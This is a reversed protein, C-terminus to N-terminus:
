RGNLWVGVVRGLRRRGGGLVLGAGHGLGVKRVGFAGQEQNDVPVCHHVPREERDRFAEGRRGSLVCTPHVAEQHGEQLNNPIVLRCVNGHRKVGARWGESILSVRLVLRAPWRSRVLQALLKRKYFLDQVGELNWVKLLVAPFRVVQDARHAADGRLLADVRQHHRTVPVLQLEDRVRHVDQHVGPESVCLHVADLREALAEGPQHRLRERVYLTQLAVRADNLSANYNPTSARFSEASDNLKQLVGGSNPLGSEALERTLDDEVPPTGVISPDVPIVKGDEIIYGDLQLCRQLDTFREDYPYRPRVRTRLGRSTRAIEELLASIQPEAGGDLSEVLATLLNTRHRVADSIGDSYLGYKELLLAILEGDQLELYQALSRLTRIGVM